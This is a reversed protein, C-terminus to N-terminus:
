AARPPPRADGKRRRQYQYHYLAKTTVAPTDPHNAVALIEFDSMNALRKHVKSDRESVTFIDSDRLIM